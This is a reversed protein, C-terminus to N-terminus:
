SQLLSSGAGFGQPTAYHLHARPHHQSHRACWLTTGGTARQAELCDPCPPEIEAVHPAHHEKERVVWVPCTANRVIGEAVSGMRWRALGSRGHTGVV